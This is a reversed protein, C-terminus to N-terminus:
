IADALSTPLVMWVCYCTCCIENVAGINVWKIEEPEPDEKYLRSGYFYWYKAGVSDKGLPEIRM